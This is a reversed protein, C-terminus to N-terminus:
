KKTSVSDVPVAGTFLVEDLPGPVRGLDWNASDSWLSTSGAGTWTNFFTPASESTTPAVLGVVLGVALPIRRM